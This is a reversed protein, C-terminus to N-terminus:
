WRGQSMHAARYGCGTLFQAVAAQSAGAAVLNKEEM